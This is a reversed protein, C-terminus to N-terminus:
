ERQERLHLRSISAVTQTVEDDDLPPRCRMANWCLMLDGVVAPDVGHWLLHGSLSAIANNRAGEAVGDRVFARWYGATHGIPRDHGRVRDLLWGPAPAPATDDPHHSVEWAYRRGSPHVSPPAVIMGGDGRLDIGPALGVMNRVIGGPHRFYIHRGGGGTIAEPTEPLPGSDREIGFLADDGGHRPDVDLVVLGSVAGTVIGVNARKWREFWRRIEAGTARRTQFEAWAVLPMKDKPAVPIVSWGREAYALAASEIDGTPPDRPRAAMM